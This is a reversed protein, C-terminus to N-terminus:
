PTGARNFACLYLEQRQYGMKDLLLRVTELSCFSYNGVWLKDREVGTVIGLAAVPSMPDEYAGYQPFM